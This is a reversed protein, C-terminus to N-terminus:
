GGVWRVSLVGGGGGEGGEGGWAELDLLIWVGGGEEGGGVWVGMWMQVERGAGRGGGVCGRV